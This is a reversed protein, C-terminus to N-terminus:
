RGEVPLAVFDKYAAHRLENAFEKNAFEHTWIPRCLIEEAYGHVDSFPGLLYGTYAGIIAAERKTIM